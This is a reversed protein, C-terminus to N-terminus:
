GRPKPLTQPEAEVVVPSQIGSERPSRRDREAPGVTRASGWGCPCQWIVTLGGEGFHERGRLERDCRPCCRTNERQTMVIGPVHPIACNEGDGSALCGGAM